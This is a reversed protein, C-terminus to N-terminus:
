RQTRFPNMRHAAIQIALPILLALLMPDFRVIEASSRWDVPMGRRARHLLEEVFRRRLNSLRERLTHQQLGTTAYNSRLTRLFRLQDVIQRFSLEGGLRSSRWISVGRGYRCEVDTSLAIGRSVRVADLWFLHDEFAHRYRQSFRVKGLVSWRLVVTSTEIVNARIIQDQMDGVFRFCNSGRDLRRHQSPVIAKRRTFEDIVGDPELHNAFYFDLDDGLAAIANRLHDPEWTDDSDIFAVYQTESSVEDLGRNRAAAPGGNRQKLVRVRIKDPLVDPIEAEPKVPSEDDIVLVEISSDVTQACVSNIANSLLGTQKQFFPVIVSVTAM